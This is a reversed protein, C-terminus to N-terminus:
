GVSSCNHLSLLNENRCGIHIHNRVSGQAFVHKYIPINQMAAHLMWANLISVRTPLLLWAHEGM